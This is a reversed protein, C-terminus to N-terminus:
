WTRLDIIHSTDSTNVSRWGDMKKWKDPIPNCICSDSCPCGSKGRGLSGLREWALWTVYDSWRIKRQTEERNPM